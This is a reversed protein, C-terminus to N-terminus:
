RVESAAPASAPPDVRVVDVTGFSAEVRWDRCPPRDHWLFARVVDSGDVVTRLGLGRAYACIRRERLARLADGNVVGDLNVVPGGEHFYSLVGSQFAGMPEAFPYSGLLRFYQGHRDDVVVGRAQFAVNVALVTALVVGAARVRAPSGAVAVMWAVVPLGLPLLVYLYRYFYHVGQVVGVYALLMALVYLVVPAMLGLLARLAAARRWTFVGLVVALPLGVWALAPGASARTVFWDRAAPHGFAGALAKWDPVVPSDLLCAVAVRLNVWASSTWDAPYLIDSLQAVAVGSQPLWAGTTAVSMWFWPLFIVTSVAAPVVVRVLRQRWPAPTGGFALDLGLPVALLVVDMRAWFGFGLLVGLSVLDRGLPRRDPDGTRELHFVVISIVALAALTTELGNVGARAAYPWLSWAAAAALAYRPRGPVLRATLRAVPLAILANLLGLVIQIAYVPAVRDDGLLDGLAYFPVALFVFLPQFGNTAHVGDATLGHGHLLNRAIALSYFSDDLLISKADVLTPLDFPLVIALRVALGLVVLLGLSRASPM